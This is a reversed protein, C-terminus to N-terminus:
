SVFADWRSDYVLRMSARKATLMIDVAGGSFGQDQLYGREAELGGLSPHRHVLPLADGPRGLGPVAHSSDVASGLSVQLVPSSAASVLPSSAVIPRDIHGVGPGDSGQGSGLSAIALSSIRLDGLVGLAAPIRGVQISGPDPTRSYFLPLKANHSTAFLDILPCGWLKILRGVLSLHLSWERM